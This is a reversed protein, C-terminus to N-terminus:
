LISNTDKTKKGAIQEPDDTNEFSVSTLPVGKDSKPLVYPGGMAMNENKKAVRYLLCVYVSKFTPDIM